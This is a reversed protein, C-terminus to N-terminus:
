LREKTELTVHSSKYPVSWLLNIKFAKYFYDYIINGRKKNGLDIDTIIFEYMYSYYILLAPRMIGEKKFSLSM